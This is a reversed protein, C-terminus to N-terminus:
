GRAPGAVWRRPLRVSLSGGAVSQSLSVKFHIRKGPVAALLASPTIKLRGEPLSFRQPPPPKVGSEEVARDFPNSESGEVAFAPAAGTLAALVAGLALCTLRRM